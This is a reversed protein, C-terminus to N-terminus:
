TPSRARTFCPKRALRRCCFATASSDRISTPSMSRARRELDTLYLTQTPIPVAAVRAAAASSAFNTAPAQAYNGDTYDANTYDNGIQVFLGNDEADQLHHLHTETTM